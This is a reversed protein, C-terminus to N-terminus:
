SSRLARELYLIWNAYLKRVLTLNCKEPKNFIYSAGLECIKNRTAPFELALCGEYIWNEPSYKDEKQTNVWTIGHPEVAKAGFRRVPGAKSALSGVGMKRKRARNISPDVVVVEKGNSSM